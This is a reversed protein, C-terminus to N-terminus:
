FRHHDRCTDLQKGEDGGQHDAPHLHAQRHQEDGARQGNKGSTSQGPHHHRQRREVPLRMVGIEDNSVQMVRQKAAHHKRQHRPDIIEVREEGLLGQRHPGAPDHEPQHKDAEVDGEHRHMEGPQHPHRAPDIGVRRHHSPIQEVQDGRDPRENNGRAKHQKRDIQQPRAALLRQRCAIRPLRSRQFPRVIHRLFVPARTRDGIDGAPIRQPLLVVNDFAHVLASVIQGVRGIQFAFREDGGHKIRTRDLTKPHGARGPNGNQRRDKGAPGEDKRGKM